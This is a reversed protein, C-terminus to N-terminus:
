TLAKMSDRKRQYVPFTTGGVFGVCGEFGENKMVDSIELRRDTSPWQVYKKGLNTIARIVRRTVKIVTGRGVNLDRSFRAVSASSGTSGLRELTLALQHAIPLQRRPGTSQFIPDSSIEDLLLRFGEKSTRVTQKFEDDPIQFLRAIDFEERPIPRARPQLYRHSLVVQLLDSLDDVDSMLYDFVDRQHVPRGYISSEGPIFHHRNRSLSLIRQDLDDGLVVMYMFFLDRVLSQRESTRPM